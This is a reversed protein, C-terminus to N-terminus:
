RALWASAGRVIASAVADISEEQEIWARTQPHTIFGLELLCASVHAPADYVEDICGYARHLWAKAGAERRDDYTAIKRVDLRWPAGNILTLMEEMEHALAAGGRSRRDFMAMAHRAESRSADHHLHVVAVREIRAALTEMRAHRQHYYGESDVFCAVHEAQARRYVAAAIRRVSDAERFAGVVAGPDYYGSSKQGHGPIVYLMDPELKEASCRRPHDPKLIMGCPREDSWGQYHALTSWGGVIAFLASPTPKIPPSSWRHVL